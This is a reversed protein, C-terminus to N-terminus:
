QGGLRIVVGGVMRAGRWGSRHRGASRRRREVAAAEREARSVDFAAGASVRFGCGAGRTALGHSASASQLAGWPLHTAEARVVDAEEGGSLSQMHEAGQYPGSQVRTSFCAAHSGGQLLPPNQVTVAVEATQTQRGPNTPAVQSPRPHGFLHVLWPIQLTVVSGAEPLDVPFHKQL